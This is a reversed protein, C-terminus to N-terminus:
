IKHLNRMGVHDLRCHWLWAMNIKAILCKDLEVEEPIFDMLYLKRRLFCKFTFSCDSRRFVTVGKDTFLCNYDIECLQSIFLLNYDFSEVLLVKFISHETTIAINGFGLVQSHSNDSFMICDNLCDNKEFYTFMRKEGTIQNTCGSDLV